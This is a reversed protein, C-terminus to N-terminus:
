DPMSGHREINSNNDEHSAEDSITTSADLDSSVQKAASSEAAMHLILKEYAEDIEKITEQARKQLTPYEARKQTDWVILLNKYARRIEEKSVGPKLQLVQYYRDIGADTELSQQDSAKIMDAKAEIFVNKNQHITENHDM